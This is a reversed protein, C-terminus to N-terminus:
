HEANDGVLANVIEVCANWREREVDDLYGEDPSSIHLGHESLIRAVIKALDTPIM